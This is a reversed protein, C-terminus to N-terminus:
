LEEQNRRPDSYKGLAFDQRMQVIKINKKAMELIIADKLKIQRDHFISREAGKLGKPMPLERKAQKTAASSSLNLQRCVDDTSAFHRGCVTVPKANNPIFGIEAM